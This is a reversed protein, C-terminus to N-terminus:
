DMKFRYILSGYGNIMHDIKGVATTSNNTHDYGLYMYRAGVEFDLANVIHFNVGLDGGYYEKKSAVHSVTTDAEYKFNMIGVNVGAFINMYKSVNALYQLEAGISNAYDFGPISYYRASLFLRSNDTQAGIKIGGEGFSKTETKNSTTLGHQFDFSGSGGEIGILSYTNNDFDADADAYAMTSVLAFSILGIKLLKKM